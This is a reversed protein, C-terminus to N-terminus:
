NRKLKKQWKRVMNKEPFKREVKEEFGLDKLGFL